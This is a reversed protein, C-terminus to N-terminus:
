GNQGGMELKDDERKDHETGIFLSLEWFYNKQNNEFKQVTGENTRM